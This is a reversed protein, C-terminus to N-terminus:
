RPFSTISVETLFVLFKVIKTHLSLIPPNFPDISMATNRKSHPSIIDVINSSSSSSTDPALACVVLLQVVAALVKAGQRVYTVPVSAVGLRSQQEAMTMRLVLLGSQKHWTTAWSLAEEATFAVLTDARGVAQPTVTSVVEQGATGGPEEM